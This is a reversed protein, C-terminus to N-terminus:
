LSALPLGSVLDEIVVSAGDGRAESQDLESLMEWEREVADPTLMMAGHCVGLVLPDVSVVERLLFVLGVVPPPGRWGDGEPPEEGPVRLYWDALSRGCSWLLARVPETLCLARADWCRGTVLVRAPAPPTSLPNPPVCLAYHPPRVRSGYGDTGVASPAVVAIGGWVM